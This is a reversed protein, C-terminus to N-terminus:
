FKTCYGLRSLQYVLMVKFHYIHAMFFYYIINMQTIVLYKVESTKASIKIIRLCFVAVCLPLKLYSQFIIMMFRDLKYRMVRDMVEILNARVIFILDIVAANFKCYVRSLSDSIWRLNLRKLKPIWYANKHLWKWSDATKGKPLHKYAKFLDCNM